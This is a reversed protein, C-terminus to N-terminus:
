EGKVLLITASAAMAKLNGIADQKENTAAKININSHPANLLTCVSAKIDSMFPALKPKEAFITCDLNSVKYGSDQMMKVVQKVIIKSDMDKYKQDTDPFFSGLDGLGLAGLISEAIAHLLVDADSHGLLGLEFPINVGGLILPRGEILQHIDYSHGIRYMHLEVEKQFHEIDKQYTIKVNNKEHLILGVEHNFTNQYQSVDDTVNPLITEYAQTIEETLFAQPTEAEFLLRRDLINLRNEKLYITNTVRKALVCARHIALGHEVQEILEDDIYVRAADHIIVYKETVEQLGNRVSEARTKGGYVIKVDEPIYSKIFSEDEPNIVLIMEYGRDYFPKFAYWFLPKHNVLYRLKNYGLNARTGSGAAVLVCAYM